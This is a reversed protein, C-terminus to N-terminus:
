GQKPEFAFGVQASLHRQDYQSPQFTGAASVDIRFPERVPIRVTLTDCPNSRVIARRVDLLPGGLPQSSANLRIRTVRITIRSPPFGGCAAARSLTV